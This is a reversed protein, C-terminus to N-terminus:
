VKLDEVLYKLSPPCIIELKRSDDGTRELHITLREVPLVHAMVDSWETVIVVKPDDLVDHLEYEMLGPDDLRYFDFHYLNLKTGNYVKNIMFTPSSVQDTSGLGRALGHVFTTKGGGLDSALEIVEGGKLRRGVAEAIQETKQASDSTVQM